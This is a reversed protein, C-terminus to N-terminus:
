WQASNPTDKADSMECKGEFLSGEGIIIKNTKINGYFKGPSVLEVKSAAEIDGRIEGSVLATAVKIKAEIVADAGVILTGTADIEGEFRGDIRVVGDFSLKGSINVGKGIFGNIHGDDKKMGMGFESLGNIQPPPDA